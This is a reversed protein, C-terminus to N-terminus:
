HIDQYMAAPLEILAQAEVELDFSDLCCGCGTNESCTRIQPAWRDLWAFLLGQEGPQDALATVTVRRLPM